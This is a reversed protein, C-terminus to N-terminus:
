RDQPRWQNLFQLLDDPTLARANEFEGSRQSFLLKGQADLVALAPIGRKMPVQYQQMLDQNKDGRGVDVHVVQYDRQLIPALDPRHFAMDLVHCDYCWNAGFVVLVRQHGQAALKLAYQIEARADVGPAYIEHDLSAPQQLRAADSRKSAVLRWEGGQQQWMQGETIYLTHKVSPAGSHIEAQFVIQEVGPKSRDTELINLGLRRAKLGTWFAVDDDASIKGSPVVIQAAPDNSYLGRAAAADGELIASKWQELPRFVTHGAAASQTPQASGQQAFGQQAFSLPIPNAVVLWAFGWIATRIPYVRM